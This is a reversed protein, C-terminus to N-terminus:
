LVEGCCIGLGAAACASLPPGCTPEVEGSLLSLEQVQVELCAAMSAALVCVARSCSSIRVQMGGWVPYWAAGNTIGGQFEKSNHMQRHAQAYTSALHRFTKDDPCANYTAQGDDNGDWPYNALLAGQLTAPSQRVSSSQCCDVGKCM